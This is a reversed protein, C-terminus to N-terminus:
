KIMEKIDDKSILGISQDKLKGDEFLLLTPISYIGYESAIEEAEDVDLKYFKCNKVEKAVEDLIPSMMKCPGCWTAFCDILVKREKIVEVFEKENIKKVEM